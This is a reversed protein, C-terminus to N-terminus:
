RLSPRDVVLWGGHHEAVEVRLSEDAESLRVAIRHLADLDYRQLHGYCARPEDEFPVAVVVRRRALRLAEALVADADAPTVHELLHLVTVTDAYGDALPVRTADCCLTQVGRGLRDSVSALLQMTPASLDTATVAIGHQAMRLPFFGFCSGLDLLSCGTVLHEAREHVPAFPAVGAELRAISNRYFRTFAPLGGDVTSRVVGTFVLEFDRQGRLLGTGDLEDALLVALEDSLEDATLDHVVTLLEGHRGVCFRPTCVSNADAHARHPGLRRTVRVNHGFWMGRPAPRLPDIRVSATM